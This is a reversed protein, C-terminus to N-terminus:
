SAQNVSLGSEKLASQLMVDQISGKGPAAITLPKGAAARQKAWSVFSNWDTVPADPLVVLASGETDVPSLIKIATGKDIAAIAPPVGVYSTQIANTAALQMLQPGADGPVLNITAVKTGNVVLDVVNPRAATPDEPVLALGYTTNFYASDKVAVFLAAHDAALLYGMNFTKNEGQPVKISGNKIMETADQYSSFDFIINDYQDPTASKLTGNLYGLQIESTVFKETGNIWAPSPETTYTVTRIANKMVSNSDVSINGYTFNGGGVLWQATINAAEDPHSTIYQDSLITLATLANVTDPNNRYFDNRSIFVNTPHNIWQGLPPFDKTYTAVKGIGTEQAIEPFPQWAIYGDVQKTGLLQPMPGVGATYLIKVGAPTTNSPVNPQQVCGAALLTLLLAIGVVSLVVTKKM